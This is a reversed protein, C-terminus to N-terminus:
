FKKVRKVYFYALGIILCIVMIISVLWFWNFPNGWVPSQKTPKQIGYGKLEAFAILRKDLSDQEGHYNEVVVHEKNYVLAATRWTPSFLEINPPIDSLFFVYEKGVAFKMSFDPCNYQDKENGRSDITSPLYVKRPAKSPGVYTIVEVTAKRGNNETGLVKGHIMAKSDYAEEFFWEPPSCTHVPSFIVFMSFCISIATILAVKKGMNGDGKIM